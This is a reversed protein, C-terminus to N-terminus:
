SRPSARPDVPAFTRFGSVGARLLFPHGALRLVALASVDTIRALPLVLSSLGAELGFRDFRGSLRLGCFPLGEELPQFAELTLFFRDPSWDRAPGATASPDAALSMFPLALILSHM